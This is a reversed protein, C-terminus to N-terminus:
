ERITLVRVFYMLVIVTRKTKKYWMNEIELNKIYYIVLTNM